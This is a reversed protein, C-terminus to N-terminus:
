KEKLMSQWHCVKATKGELHKLINYFTFLSCYCQILTEHVVYHQKVGMYEKCTALCCADLFWTVHACCM